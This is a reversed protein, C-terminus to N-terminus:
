PSRGCRRRGARGIREDDLQGEDGAVAQDGADRRERVEEADGLDRRVLSPWSLARAPGSRRELGCGVDLQVLHADAGALALHRDDDLHGFRARHIRKLSCAASLFRLASASSASTCSQVTCGDCASSIASSSARGASQGLREAPWITSSAPRSSVTTAFFSYAAEVLCSPIRGHRRLHQGGVQAAPRSSPASQSGVSAETPAKSKASATM